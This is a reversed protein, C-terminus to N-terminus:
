PKYVDRVVAAHNREVIASLLAHIATVHDEDSAGLINIKCKRFIRVLTKRNPKKATPTSFQVAIRTSEASYDVDFMTPFIIDHATNTGVLERLLGALAALNINQNAGANFKFKYNLMVVSLSSTHTTENPPAINASTGGLMEAIIKIFKPVHAIYDPKAGPLQIDGNRFIKYKYLIHWYDNGDEDKLCPMHPTAYLENDVTDRAVMTIQSNFYKGSGQSKRKTKKPQAKRGRNSKRIKVPDTYGDFMHEGFNCGIKVIHENPVLEDILGVENFCVNAIKGEITFTTAVPVTIYKFRPDDVDIALSNERTYIFMDTNGLLNYKPLVNDILPADPVIEPTTDPALEPSMGDHPEVVAATANMIGAFFDDDFESM